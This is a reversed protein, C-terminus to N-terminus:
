KWSVQKEYGFKGESDFNVENSVTTVIWPLLFMQCLLVM